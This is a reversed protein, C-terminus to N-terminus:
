FFNSNARFRLSVFVFVISWKGRALELFFFFLFLFPLISFVLPFLVFASFSPPIFDFGSRVFSTSFSVAPPFDFECARKPRSFDNGRLQRPRSSTVATGRHFIPPSSAIEVGRNSNLVENASLALPLPYFSPCSRADLQNRIVDFALFDDPPFEIGGRHHVPM